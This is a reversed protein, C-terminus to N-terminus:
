AGAFREQKYREFDARNMKGIEQASKATASPQNASNGAVSAQVAARDASIQANPLSSLRSAVKQRLGVEIQEWRKPNASRQGFAVALRPDKVAEAEILDRLLDQDVTKLGPDAGQWRGIMAKLDNETRERAQAANFDRIRKDAAAIDAPTALPQGMAPDTTTPTTTPTPGPQTAADAEALLAALNDVPSPTGASSGPAANSPAAPTSAPAATSPAAPTSELTPTAAEPPM